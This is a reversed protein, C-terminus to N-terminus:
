ANNLKLVAIAHVRRFKNYLVSSEASIIGISIDIDSIVTDGCVEVGSEGDCGEVGVTPEGVRDVDICTGFFLFVLCNLFDM